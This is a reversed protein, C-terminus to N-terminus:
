FIKNRNLSVRQEATATWCTMLLINNYRFISLEAKFDSIGHREVMGAHPLWQMHHIIQAYIHLKYVNINILQYDRYM